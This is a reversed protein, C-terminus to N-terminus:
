RKHPIMEQSTDDSTDDTPRKHPKMHQSTDDAPSVRMMHLARKHMPLGRKYIYLARKHMCLAKTFICSEKTSICPHKASLHVLTPIDHKDHTDGGHTTLLATTHLQSSLQPICSEKTSIYPEKTSKYPEEASM